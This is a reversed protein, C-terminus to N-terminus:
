HAPLPVEHVRLALVGRTARPSMPWCSSRRRAAASLGRHAPGGLADDGDARLGAIIGRSTRSRSMRASGKAEVLRDAARGRRHGADDQRPQGPVLDERLDVPPRPPGRAPGLREVVERTWDLDDHAVLTAMRMSPSMTGPRCWPGPPMARPGGGPSVHDNAGVIALGGSGPNQGSGTTARWMVWSHASAATPAPVTSSPLLTAQLGGEHVTVLNAVTM